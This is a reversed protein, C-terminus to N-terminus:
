FKNMSLYHSVNYLCFTCNDNCKILCWVMIVYPPAFTYVTSKRLSLVVHFQTFVNIIWSNYRCPFIGRGLVQAPPHTLIRCDTQISQHFSVTISRFKVMSLIWCKDHVKHSLSLYGMTDCVTYTVLSGVMTNEWGTDFSSNKTCTGIHQIGNSVWDGFQADQRM